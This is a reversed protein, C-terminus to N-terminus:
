EKFGAFRELSEYDPVAGRLIKGDIIFFPTGTVGLRKGLELNMRLVDQLKDTAAVKKVAEIDAGVQTLAAEIAAFDKVKTGQTMLLDQYAFYKDKDLSYLALGVAAAQVSTASLIPFEVYITQMQHEQALKETLPRVVKCYGCNYDNFEILYHKADASGKMPTAPNTRLTHVIENLTENAAQQQLKEMEAAVEFMVEPHAVLYDHVIQEIEAKQTTSFSEQAQTPAILTITLGLALAWASMPAKLSVISLM